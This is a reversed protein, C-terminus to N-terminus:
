LGAPVSRHHRKGEHGLTLSHHMIEFRHVLLLDGNISRKWVQLNNTGRGADSCWVETLGQLYTMPYSGQVRNGVRYGVPSVTSADTTRLATKTWHPARRSRLPCCVQALYGSLNLFNNRVSFETEWPFSFTPRSHPVWVMLGLRVVEAADGRSGYQWHGNTSPFGTGKSGLQFIQPTPPSIPQHPHHPPPPQFPRPPPPPCWLV